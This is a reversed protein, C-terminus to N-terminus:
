AAKKVYEDEARRWAERNEELNKHLQELENRLEIQVKPSALFKGIGIHFQLQSEGDKIDFSGCTGINAQFFFRKELERSERNYSLDYGYYIDFSHGFMVKRFSTEDTNKMGVIFHSESFADVTWGDGLVEQVTALAQQRADEMWAKRAAKFNNHLAQGEKSDFFQSRLYEKKANERATTLQGIKSELEEKTSRATKAIFDLREYETWADLRRYYRIDETLRAIQQAMEM